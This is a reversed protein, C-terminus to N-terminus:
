IQADTMQQAMYENLDRAQSVDPIDFPEGIDYIEYYATEILHMEIPDSVEDGFTTAPMKLDINAELDMFTPVLNAQDVWVRYVIDAKMNKFLTQMMQTMDQNFDQGDEMEPMTPMQNMVSEFLKNFSEAGMTVNIVWYSRGDREQDDGFSMIAGSEQMMKMSAIPDNTNSQEILTKMDMGPISMKFWGEEEPLTMFMGEENMFVETTASLALDHAEPVAPSDITTKIYAILPQQHMAMYMDMNTIAHVTEQKAVNTIEMDMSINVDAKYTQNKIMAESSKVMIEEISMGQRKESYQVGATKSSQEWTITAGFAECIFRLPVMVEDNVMTPAQPMIMKIGNLSAKTDGLTFQLTAPGKKITVLNDAIDIDAGLVRGILYLPVMTTGNELQPATRPAFHNGNINLNVDAWVPNACLLLFFVTVIAVLKQRM